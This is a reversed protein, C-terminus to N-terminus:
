DFKGRSAENWRMLATSLRERPAHGHSELYGPAIDTSLVLKTVRDPHIGIGLASFPRLGAAAARVTWLPLTMTRASPFYRGRLCQVIQEISYRDPYCGNFTVTREPRSEAFFIAEILDEVYFCAKITDRRGPFVFFGKRLMKALRTFNGGEGPGFIVAPRAVVLRRDPSEMLWNRHVKEALLKSWGYPSEPEPSSQETKTNESPGYVSISSTFVIRRINKRRAFATIESAGAVNTEYYEHPPHGPTTHVAALNYIVDICGECDFGVLDRVDGDLYLVGEVPTKPKRQDLSIPQEVGRAKLARLLHTGIFGAGGFVIATRDTTQM